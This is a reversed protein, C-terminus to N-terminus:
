FVFFSPEYFKPKNENNNNQPFSLFPKFLSFTINVLNAYSLLKDGACLLLIQKISIFFEEENNERFEDFKSLFANIHLYKRVKDHPRCIHDISHTVWIM